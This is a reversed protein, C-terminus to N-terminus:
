WGGWVTGWLGEIRWARSKLCQRAAGAHRLKGMRGNSNRRPVRHPSYRGLQIPPRVPQRCLAAARPLHRSVPLLPEILRSQPPSHSGASSALSRHKPAPESGAKAHTVLSTASLVAASVTPQATRELLSFGLLLLLSCPVLQSCPGTHWHEPQLCSCGDRSGCDPPFAPIGLL